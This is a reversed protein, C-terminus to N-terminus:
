AAKKLNDKTVIQRILNVLEDVWLIRYHGTGPLPKLQARLNAGVISQSNVYPIVSDAPDHLMTLSTYSIERMLDQVSLTQVPGIKRHTIDLLHRFAADSMGIMLKYDRFIDIMRNPSTIYVLNGISTGSQNLAHTIVASGFSHAVVSWNKNVNLQHMVTQLAKSSHFLNTREIRSSGHAPLTVAVIRHDAMLEKMIGYLSGPHSDWGHVFLLPPKAPNGLEYVYTGDKNIKEVATEYFPKERSRVKKNTPKQFWKLAMHAAHGPAIRSYFGFLTLFLKQTIKM